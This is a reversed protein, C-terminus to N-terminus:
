GERTRRTGTVFPQESGVVSMGATPFLRKFAARVAPRSSRAFNGGLGRMPHPVTQTDRSRTAGGHFSRRAIGSHYVRAATGTQGRRMAANSIKNGM